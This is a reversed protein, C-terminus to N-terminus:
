NKDAWLRICPQVFDMYDMRYLHDGSLRLINENNKNKADQFVWIFQRVADATGQFWKKGAEGPIQTAALVLDRRRKEAIQEHEEKRLSESEERARQEAQLDMLAMYRHLPVEYQRLNHM